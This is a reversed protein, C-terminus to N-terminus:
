GQAAAVAEEWRRTVEQPWGVIDVGGTAVLAPAPGRPGGVQCGGTLQQSGASNTDEREQEGEEEGACIRQRCPWM